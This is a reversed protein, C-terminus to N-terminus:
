IDGPCWAGITIHKLAEKIRNISFAEIHDPALIVTEWRLYDSMGFCQSEDSQGNDLDEVEDDWGMFGLAVNEVIGDGDKVTMNDNVIDYNGPTTEEVEIWNGEQKEHAEGSLVELMNGMSRGYGRHELYIREIM